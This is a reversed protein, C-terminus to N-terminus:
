GLGMMGLSKPKPTAGGGSAPRLSIAAETYADSSTSTDINTAGATPQVYYVGSVWSTVGNQVATFATAGAPSTVSFVVPDVGPDSGLMFVVMAGNTATTITIDPSTDTNTSNESVPTVGDLPTTGDVGSFAAMIYSYAQNGTFTNTFSYSSPESSAIKYWASLTTDTGHAQIAVITTWGATSPEGAGFAVGSGANTALWM